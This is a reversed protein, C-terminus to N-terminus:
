RYQRNLPRNPIKLTRVVDVAELGTGLSGELTFIENLAPIYQALVHSLSVVAAEIAASM